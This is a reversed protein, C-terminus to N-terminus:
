IEQYKFKVYYYIKILHVLILQVLKCLKSIGFM